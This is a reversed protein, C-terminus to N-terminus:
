ASLGILLNPKVEKVVELLGYKEMDMRNQALPLTRM